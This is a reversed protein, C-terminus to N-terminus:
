EFQKVPIRLDVPDKVELLPEVGEVVPPSEGVAIPDIDDSEAFKDIDEAGASGVVPQITPEGFGDLLVGDIGADLEWGGL